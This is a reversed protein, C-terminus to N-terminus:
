SESRVWQIAQWAQAPTWGSKYTATKYINSKYGMFTSLTKSLVGTFAPKTGSIFSVSGQANIIWFGDSHNIDYTLPKYPAMWDTSPPTGQDVVQVTWGFFKELLTLNANTDGSGTAASSSSNSSSTGMGMTAGNKPPVPRSTVGQPTWIQFGNGVLASYAKIRAVTDRYPDVSVAVIAVKSSLGAQQVLHGLQLLNGSTFPCTDGCLTLLPVVFITRGRLGQLTEAQGQANWFKAGAVSAPMSVSTAVGVSSPPMKTEAASSVMPSIFLGTALIIGGLYRRM